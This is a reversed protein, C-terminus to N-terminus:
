GEVAAEVPATTTPEGEVAAEVPAATADVPAATADVPAATADVPAATADDAAIAASGEAIPTTTAEVAATDSKRRKRTRPASSGAAKKRTRKQKTKPADVAPADAPATEVPAPPAIEAEVPAPPAIELVPESIPEPPLLTEVFAMAVVKGEGPANACATWREIAEGEDLGVCRAFSRVFGKVFVEAPLGESQGSELKELIRPQIKTVRSVDDLSLRRRARGSRLWIALSARPDVFTGSRDARDSGPEM